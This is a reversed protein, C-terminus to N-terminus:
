GCNVACSRLQDILVTRGEPFGQAAMFEAIEVIAERVSDHIEDAHVEHVEGTHLKVSVTQDGLPDIQGGEPADLCFFRQSAHGNRANRTAAEIGLLLYAPAIPDYTTQWSGIEIRVARADVARQADGNAFDAEAICCMELRELSIGM